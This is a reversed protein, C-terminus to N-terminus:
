SSKQGGFLDEASPHLCVGLALPVSSSAQANATWGGGGVHHILLRRVKTCTLGIVQQLLLAM